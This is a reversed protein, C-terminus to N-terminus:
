DGWGGKSTCAMSNWWSQCWSLVWQHLTYAVNLLILLFTIVPANNRFYSRETRSNTINVPLSKELIVESFRCLIWRGGASNCINVWRENYTTWSLSAYCSWDIWAGISQLITIDVGCKKIHSPFFIEQFWLIFNCSRLLISSPSSQATMSQGAQETGSRFNGIEEPM